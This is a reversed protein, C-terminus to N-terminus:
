APNLTAEPDEDALFIALVEKDDRELSLRLQLTVLSLDSFLRASGSKKGSLGQLARSITPIDFLDQGHLFPGSKSTFHQDALQYRRSFWRATSGTTAPELGTARALNLEQRVNM